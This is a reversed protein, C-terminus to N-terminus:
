KKKMGEIDTQMRQLIGMISDMNVEEDKKDSNNLTCVFKWIEVVDSMKILYPSYNKNDSHLELHKGKLYEKIFLVKM